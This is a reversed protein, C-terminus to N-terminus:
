LRGIFGRALNQQIVSIIFMKCLNKSPPRNQTVKPNTPMMGSKKPTQIRRVDAGVTKLCARLGALPAPSIRPNSIQFKLPPLIRGQVQFRPLVSVLIQSKFNSLPFSAAKSRTQIILDM